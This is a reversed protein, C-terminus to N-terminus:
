RCEFFTYELLFYFYFVTLIAVVDVSIIYNLGSNIYYTIKYHINHDCSFKQHNYLKMVRM